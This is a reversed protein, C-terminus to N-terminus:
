FTVIWSMHMFYEDSLPNVVNEKVRSLWQLLNSQIRRTRFIRKENESTSGNGAEQTIKELNQMM